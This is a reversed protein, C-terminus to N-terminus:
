GAGPGFGGVDPIHRWVWNAVKYTVYFGLMGLLAVQIFTAVEHFPFIADFGGVYSGAKYGLSSGDHTGGAGIGITSTLSFTPLASFIPTLIANLLSFFADVIM